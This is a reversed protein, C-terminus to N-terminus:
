YFLIRVAAKSLRELNGMQPLREWRQQRVDRGGETEYNANNERQFSQMCENELTVVSGWDKVTPGPLPHQSSCLGAQIVVTVRRGPFGKSWGVALTLWNFARRVEPGKCKSNGTGPSSKMCNDSHSDGKGEEPREESAVKETLGEKAARNLSTM